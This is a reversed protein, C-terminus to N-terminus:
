KMIEQIDDRIVIDSSEIQSTNTRTPNLTLYPIIKPSIYEVFVGIVIAGLLILINNKSAISM